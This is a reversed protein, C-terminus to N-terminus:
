TSANKRLEHLLPQIDLDGFANGFWLKWTAFAQHVLMELGGVVPIKLGQAVKLFPTLEPKYIVDFAGGIKESIPSLIEEFFERPDRDAEVGAMGM